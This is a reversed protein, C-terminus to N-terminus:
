YMSYLEEISAERVGAGERVNKGYPFALKDELTIGEKIEVTSGYFTRGTTVKQKKLRQDEGEKYVFEEGNQTRIYERSIFIGTIEGGEAPLDMSVMENAKFGEGDQIVATFPYYSQEQMGSSYGEQPYPSVETIEAQFGMQSEYAMGTVIQGPKVSDLQYEGVMGQIYAGAASEVEIFPEGDVEGKAPDGVKKVTGDLTSKVVEGELQQETKKIKLDAEKIDLEADSIEKQKESIAKELEEKSYGQIIDEEPIFEIFDEPIDIWEEDEPIEEEPPPLIDWQDYGLYTRFWVEPQVSEAITNGDLLMAALLVGDEKDETRVELLCYVPDQSRVGTDDFGGAWNLFAGQILVNKTCLFRYPDERTGTGMFAVANEFVGQDETHEGQDLSIDKYLRQYVGSPRPIEPTEEEPQQPSEPDAPNEPDLEEGPDVPMEPDLSEGPDTPIEPDLSEGPDTPTEPDLSGEPEKPTEPNLTGEPETPTEPNLTEEPEKPTEPNLTGEPEESDPTEGSGTTDGSGSPNEQDSVGDTEGAGDEQFLNEQDAPLEGEGSEGAPQELGQEAATQVAALDTDQISGLFEVQYEETRSVAQAKDKKLKELEQELGKKKIELQQRTLKEMELDINVLTMDYSLLPDGKKVEQGEQVHVASVIQKDQLHVEQSVQSAITGDLSTGNQWISQSLDSVPYVDVQSSRLNQGLYWAGIGLVGISAATIVITKKKIKM